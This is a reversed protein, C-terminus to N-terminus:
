KMLRKLLEIWIQMCRLEDRQAHGQERLTFRGLIDLLYGMYKLRNDAHEALHQQMQLWIQAADAHQEFIASQTVFHYYDIGPPYSRSAYEWDFVFLEGREVFMNWPTFDGHCACFTVKQGAYSGLVEDLTAQVV